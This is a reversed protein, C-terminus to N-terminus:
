SAPTATDTPTQGQDGPEPLAPGGGGFLGALSATLADSPMTVKVVAGLNTFAISMQREIVPTRGGGAKVGKEMDLLYAKRPDKKVRAEVFDEHSEIDIQEVIKIVKGDKIYWSMKRFSGPGPLLQNRASKGPLPVRVLDYRKIGLSRNPKEFPDLDPRYTLSNENFEIVSGAEDIARKAYKFINISDQMPDQGVLNARANDTRTVLPPAGGPDLVWGGTRLVDTVILSGGVLAGTRLSEFRDPKTVKVAMADESVVRELIEAEDESWLVQSRLDDEVSGRIQTKVEDDDTLYVFRRSLKETAAIFGRLEQEDTVRSTCGGMVLVSILAVAVAPYRKM